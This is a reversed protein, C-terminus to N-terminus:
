QNNGEKWFEDKQEIYNFLKPNDTTLREWFYYSREYTANGYSIKHKKMANNFINNVMTAGDLEGAEAKRTSKEALQLVQKVEATIERAEAVNDCIEYAFDYIDKTSNKLQHAEKLSDERFLVEKIEKATM